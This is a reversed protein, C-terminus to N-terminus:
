ISTKNNFRQSIEQYFQNGLYIEKTLTNEIVDQSNGVTVVLGNIIVYARQAFSLLQDAHHDSILIAIGKNSIDVFIKKLEYISKPDVGAFPEDLMILTPHMLLTRVVELKRKQGGSLTEVKYNLTDSLHTTYLWLNREEIFLNLSINQWYMQHQFIIELNDKVSLQQFLSSQQPLYVLGQTVRQCVPLKNIILNDFTIKCNSDKPIKFLGILTKLLTTKGAGNPGLLAVIEGTNVELSIHHLIKKKKFKQNLNEVHLLAM